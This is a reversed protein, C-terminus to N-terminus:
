EEHNFEASFQTPRQQQKHGHDNGGRALDAALDAGAGAGALVLQSFNLVYQM